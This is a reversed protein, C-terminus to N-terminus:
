CYTAIFKDRTTGTLTMSDAIHKAQVEALQERTLRQKGKDQAQATGMFAIMLLVSFLFRVMTKM